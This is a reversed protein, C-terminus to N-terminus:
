VFNYARGWVLKKKVGHLFESELLSGFGYGSLMLVAGMGILSLGAPASYDIEPARQM